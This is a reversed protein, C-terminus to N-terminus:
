IYIGVILVVILMIYLKYPKAKGERPPESNRRAREKLDLDPAAKTLM